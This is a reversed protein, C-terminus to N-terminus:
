TRVGSLESQARARIPELYRRLLPPHGPDPATLVQADGSAALRAGREEPWLLAVHDALRAAQALDHTVLVVTYFGRLSAILDEVVAAALPDLASCPEDLLLVEPELVLARALCLRQQQGGSLTTASAELRDAVEDWLGVARLAREIRASRERRSRCGHERLPLDLNRRISLPFPTPQQFIMGVRRRLAVLDVGPDRLDTDGWRIRGAVRASPVLEDLRNICSLLSSKGCGSPGVLATIRCAPIPLDIHDLVAQRGYDLCLGDLQLDQCPSSVCTAGALLPPTPDTM